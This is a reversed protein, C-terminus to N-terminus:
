YSIINLNTYMYPSRHSNYAGSILRSNENAHYMYLLGRGNPACIASTFAPDLNGGRSSGERKSLGGEGERRLGVVWAQKSQRICSAEERRQVHVHVHVSVEPLSIKV